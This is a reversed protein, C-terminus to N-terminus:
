IPIEKNQNAVIYKSKSNKIDIPLIISIFQIICNIGINITNHWNPPVKGSRFGIKYSQM